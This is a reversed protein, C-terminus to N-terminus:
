REVNMELEVGIYSTCGVGVSCVSRCTLLLVCCAQRDLQMGEVQHELTPLLGDEGGNSICDVGHLVVGVGCQIHEGNPPTISVCEWVAGCMPM